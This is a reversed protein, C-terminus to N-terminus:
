ADFIQITYFKRDVLDSRTCFIRSDPCFHPRLPFFQACSLNNLHLQWFLSLIVLAARASLGFIQRLIKKGFKYKKGLIQLLFVTFINCSSGSRFTWIKRLKQTGFKTNKQRTNAFFLSYIIIAAGASLM